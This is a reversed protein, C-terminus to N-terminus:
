LGRVLDRVADSVPEGDIRAKLTKEIAAAGPRGGANKVWQAAKKVEAPSMVTAEDILGAAAQLDPEREGFRTAM